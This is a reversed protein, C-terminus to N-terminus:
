PTSAPAALAGLLTYSAKPGTVVLTWAKLQEASTCANGRGHLILRATLGAAAGPKFIGTATLPVTLRWEKYLVPDTTPPQAGERLDVFFSEMKAPLTFTLSGTNGKPDKLNFTWVDGQRVLATEYTESPDRIGSVGDFGAATLYLKAPKAFRLRALEAKEYAQLPATGEIRQGPESCCACARADSAHALLALSAATLAPRLLAAFLRTNM